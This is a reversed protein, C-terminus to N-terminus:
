SSRRRKKKLQKQLGRIAKCKERNLKWFHLYKREFGRSEEIYSENDREIKRIYERMKEFKKAPIGNEYRRLRSVEGEYAIIRVEARRCRLALEEVIKADSQYIPLHKMINQVEKRMVEAYTNDHELRGLFRQFREAKKITM